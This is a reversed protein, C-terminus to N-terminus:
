KTTKLDIIFANGGKLPKAYINGGHEKIINQAISLGLGYSGSSTRAKDVRYFRKFINKINEKSLPTGDSEM